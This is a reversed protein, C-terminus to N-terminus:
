RLPRALVVLELFSIQINKLYLLDLLIMLSLEKLINNQIYMIKNFITMMFDVSFKNIEDINSVDKLGKTLYKFKNDVM